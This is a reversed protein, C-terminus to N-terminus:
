ELCALKFMYMGSSADYMVFEQTHHLRLQAEFADPSEGLPCHVGFFTVVSPRNLGVHRAPTFENGYFSIGQSYFEVAAEVDAPHMDLEGPFVVSGFPSSMTFNQLKGANRPALHLSHQRMDEVGNDASKSRLEKIAFGVSAFRFESSSVLELHAGDVSVLVHANTGGADFSSVGGFCASPPLALTECPLVFACDTWNLNPHLKV